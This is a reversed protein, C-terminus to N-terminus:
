CRTAAEDFHMWCMSGGQEALPTEPPRKACIEMTHPCRTRFRCGQPPDILSPVSGPITYLAEHYEDISRASTLLAKTYPHHPHTMLDFVNGHELVQGAYMVYVRDCLESVVGLDHTILLIATAFRERISLLLEIIQRQITADLATTPEDAIILSPRCSLAIAFLIRQKMGGSLQHPFAEFTRVPESIRLSTMWDIAIQKAQKHTVEANHQLIAEVIQEGVRMVPNLFTMPDQFTMSVQCGRIAEMEKPSLSLLDVEGLLIEGGVTQGTPKPLLQLISLGTASKGSGSEGVLGVIEAQM